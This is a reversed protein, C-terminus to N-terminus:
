RNARRATKWALLMDQMAQNMLSPAAKNLRRLGLAALVLLHRQQARRERPLVQATLAYRQLAQLRVRELYASLHAPPDAAALDDNDIGAAVLEDIPFAVHGFRMARRYSGVSQSLYDAVALSRVCATLSAEDVDDAALRSALALPDARLAWVHPELERGHELPAGNAEAVSAEVARLLPTFDVAAARPLSRLYAGIPHVPTGAILRRMEEQWWSLKVAAPDRPSAPDMLASWEALLAYIGLLPARAEVAAFLWSWYRASGFPVAHARYSADLTKQPQSM